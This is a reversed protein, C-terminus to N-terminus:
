PKLTASKAFSSKEFKKNYTTSDKGHPTGQTPLVHLTLPKARGSFPCRTVHRSNLLGNTTNLRDFGDHLRVPGSLRV